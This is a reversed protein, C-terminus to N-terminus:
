KKTSAGKAKKETARPHGSSALTLWVVKEANDICYWVRAGSAIDYQWQPLTRGGIVREGLTGKLPKKLATRKGPETKLERKMDACTGAYQKELEPFSLAEKTAYKLTYEDGEAPPPLEDGRKVGHRPTM